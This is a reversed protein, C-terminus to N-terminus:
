LVQLIFNKSSSNSNAHWTCNPDTNNHEHSTQRASILEKQQNWLMFKLPKIHSDTHTDSLKNKSQDDNSKKRVNNKEGEAKLKAKTILVDESLQTNALKM